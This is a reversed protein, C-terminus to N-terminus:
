TSHFIWVIDVFNGGGAGGAFFVVCGVVLGIGHDISPIFLSIRRSTPKDVLVSKLM